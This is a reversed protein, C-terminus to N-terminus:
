GSPNPRVFRLRVHGLSFEKKREGLLEPRVILAKAERISLRPCLYPAYSLRADGV